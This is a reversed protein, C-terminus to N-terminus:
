KGISKCANFVEAVSIKDLDRNLNTETKKGMLKEISHAYTTLDGGTKITVHMKGEPSTRRYDVRGFISITPVELAASIHMLGSDNSIFLRCNKIIAAVKRIDPDEVIVVKDKYKVFNKIIKLNREDPGLFVLIRANFKEILLNSLEAFKEIPWRKIVMHSEESSGPHMGVIINEKFGKVFAAAFDREDKSLWLELKYNGRNAEATIGLPRLLNLNQEVDHCIKLPMKYNQLFVLNNKYDHTIRKKAGVFAALLNYHPQQAPITTISIDYGEKRLKMLTSLNKFFDKEFKKNILYINDTYPCGKMIEASSHLGVLLDIRAKPFHRRLEKLMPVALLTNGIGPIAIALIKM